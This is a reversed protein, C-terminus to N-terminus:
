YRIGVNNKPVLKFTRFSISLLDLCELLFSDQWLFCFLLVLRGPVLNSKQRDRPDPRRERPSMEQLLSQYDLRGQFKPSGFSFM